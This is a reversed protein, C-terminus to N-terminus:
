RRHFGPNGKKEYYTLPNGQLSAPLAVEEGDQNEEEHSFIEEWQSIRQEEKTQEPPFVILELTYRRIFDEYHMTLTITVECKEELRTKVVYEGWDSIVDPADSEWELHAGKYSSPFRLSATVHDQTQNESFIKEKLEEFLGDLYARQEEEGPIQEQVPVQIHEVEENLGYIDVDYLRTGEGYEPRPLTFIPIQFFNEWLCFLFIVGCGTLILFFVINERAKKRQIVRGAEETSICLARFWQRRVEENEKFLVGKKWLIAGLLIMANVAYIM